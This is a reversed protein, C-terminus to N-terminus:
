LHGGDTGIRFWSSGTWAGMDWKKFIWRLIIRGDVGTDGLHERGEPKGVLIRYSCKGDGIRAVHRAWRMRRSKIVRVISFSYQLMNLKANHLKRWEGTIEDRKFGFIRRFVRNEFM